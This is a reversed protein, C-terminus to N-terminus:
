HAPTTTDPAPPRPLPESATQGTSFYLALRTSIDESLQKTARDRVDRESTITGYQNDLNLIDYSINSRSAGKLVTAGSDIKRLQFNATLELMTRSPTESPELLLDENREVITVELVYVPEDPKGRPNLRDRLRNYLLQGTRDAIPAVRVQSLDMAATPGNDHTGYLPRFGCGALTTALGLGVFGLLFRRRSDSCWM